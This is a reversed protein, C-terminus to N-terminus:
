SARPPSSACRRRAAVALRGDRADHVRDAAPGAAAGHVARACGALEAPGVRNYYPTILMVAAAGSAAAHEALAVADRQAPAGVQALM